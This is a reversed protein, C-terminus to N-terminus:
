QNLKINAGILLAYKMEKITWINYVEEKIRQM